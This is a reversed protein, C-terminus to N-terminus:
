TGYVQKTNKLKAKQKIGNEYRAPYTNLVESFAKLNNENNQKKTLKQKGKIVKAINFKKLVEGFSIKSVSMYKKWSTNM